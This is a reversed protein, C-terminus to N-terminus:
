CSSSHCRINLPFLMPVREKYAEYESGFRELLLREEYGSIWYYFVVIVLWVIVSALSLTMLILGLYLLISGLYIPHRVFSFVGSTIVHPTERKDKFVTKLGFLALWGSILLVVLAVPMRVYVSVYESLFSSYRFIFSDTIWSILFIGFLILQGADGFAHEGTLDERGQYSERWHKKSAM